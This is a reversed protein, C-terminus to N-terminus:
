LYHLLNPRHHRPAHKQIQPNTTPLPRRRRQTHALNQPPRRRTRRRRPDRITPHQIRNPRHQPRHRRTEQHPTIDIGDIGDIGDVGVYGLDALIHIDTLTAALGSAAYAHADHRAGHV